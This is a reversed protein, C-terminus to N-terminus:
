IGDVYDAVNNIGGEGEKDNCKLVAVCIGKDVFCKCDCNNDGDTLKGCIEGEFNCDKISVCIDGKGCDCVCICKKPKEGEFLCITM